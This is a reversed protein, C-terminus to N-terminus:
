TLLKKIRKTEQEIHEVTLLRDIAWNRTKEEGTVKKVAEIYKAISDCKNESLFLNKISPM